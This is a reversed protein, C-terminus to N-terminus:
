VLDQEWALDQHKVLDLDEVPDPEQTNIKEGV